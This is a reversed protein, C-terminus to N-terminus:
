FLDDGEGPPVAAPATAVAPTPAAAPATAISAGDKQCAPRDVWKAVDLIPLDTGGKAYVKDEVLTLKVHPVENRGRQEQIQPMLHVLSDWVAAGSQERTAAWDKSIAVRISIGKKWGEGPSAM